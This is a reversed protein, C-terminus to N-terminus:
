SVIFGSHGKGPAQWFTGWVADFVDDHVFEDVEDLAMVVGMADFEEVSVQGM